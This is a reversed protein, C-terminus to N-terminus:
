WAESFTESALHQRRGAASTPQQADPEAVAEEGRSGAGGALVAPAATPLGAGLATPLGFKAMLASETELAQSCM